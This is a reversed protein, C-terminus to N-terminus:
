PVRSPVQLRFEGPVLGAAPGHHMSAQQKRTCPGFQPKATNMQVQVGKVTISSCWAPVSTQGGM